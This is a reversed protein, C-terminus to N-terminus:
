HLGWASALQPALSSSPGSQRGAQPTVLQGGPDGLAPSGTVWRGLCWVWM